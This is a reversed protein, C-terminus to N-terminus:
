HLRKVKIEDSSSVEEEQSYVSGLDWALKDIRAYLVEFVINFLWYPDQLIDQCPTTSALANFKEWLLLEGGFVILTVESFSWTKTGPKTKLCYASRVWTFDAHRLGNARNGVYKVGKIDEVPVNKCLFHFWSDPKKTHMLNFNGNIHHSVISDQLKRLPELPTRLM